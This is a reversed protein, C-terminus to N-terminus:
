HTTPKPAVPVPRKTMLFCPLEKPNPLKVSAGFATPVFSPARAMWSLCGKTEEPSAQHVEFTWRTRDFQEYSILDARHIYEVIIYKQKQPQSWRDVRMIYIEALDAFSAPEILRTDTKGRQIAVVAGDVSIPQEVKSTTVAVPPENAILCPLDKLPPIAVSVGPKTRRFDEMRAPRSRHSAGDESPLPVSGACSEAEHFIPERFTFRWKEQNMEEDSLARQSVKEYTVLFYGANKTVGEWRDIRVIWEEVFTGMGSQHPKERYRDYKQFAVITGEGKFQGPAQQAMAVASLVIGISFATLLKHSTM